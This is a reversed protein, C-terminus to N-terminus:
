GNDFTNFYGDDDLVSTSITHLRINPADWVNKLILKAATSTELCTIGIGIVKSKRNNDM